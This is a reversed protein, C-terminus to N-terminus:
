KKSNEIVAKFDEYTKLAKNNGTGKYYSNDPNDGIGENVGMPGMPIAAWIKSLNYIIEDVSKSSTGAVYDFVGADDFLMDALTEQLEDTFVQNYSIDGRELLRKLTPKIFQYNGIASSGNGKAGKSNQYDVFKDQLDLVENVTLTSIDKGAYEQGATSYFDEVSGYSTNYLSNYDNGSEMGKITDKVRVSANSVKQNEAKAKMKGFTVIVDSPRAVTFSDLVKENGAADTMTPTVSIGASTKNYKFNVSEGNPTQLTYDGKLNKPNAIERTLNHRAVDSPNPIENQTYPITYYTSVGDSDKAEVVFGTSIQSINEPSVRGVINFEVDDGLDSINVPDDYGDTLPYLKTNSYSTVGENNTTKGLLAKENEEIAKAFKDADTGIGTTNYLVVGQSGYNTNHDEIFAAIYGQYAAPDAKIGNKFNDIESRTPNEMGLDIMEKIITPEMYDLVNDYQKIRKVGVEKTYYPDLADDWSQNKEKTIEYETRTLDGKKGVGGLAIKAHTAEERNEKSVLVEKGDVIKYYTDQSTKKITEYDNQANIVKSATLEANQPTTLIVGSVVDNTTRLDANDGDGEGESKSKDFSSGLIQRNGGEEKSVKTLGAVAKVQKSLDDMTLGKFDWDRAYVSAGTSYEANMLDVFNQLNKSNSLKTTDGVLSFVVAGNPGKTTQIRAPSIDSTQIGATRAVELMHKIHDQDKPPVTWQGNWDRLEGTTSDFAGLAGKAKWEDVKENWKKNLLERDQGNEQSFFNKKAEQLDTYFKNAQFYVGSNKSQEVDKKVALTKRRLDSLDSGSGLLSNSIDEIKSNFQNSYDNLIGTKDQETALVDSDIAYLSDMIKDKEAKRQMPVFMAEEFSLEPAKEFQLNKTFRGIAM